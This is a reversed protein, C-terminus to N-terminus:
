RGGAEGTDRVQEEFWARVDADDPILGPDLPRIPVERRVRVEFGRRELRALDEANVLLRVGGEPDPIRDLDLDAVRSLDAARGEAPHVTVEFRMPPGGEPEEFEDRQREDSM